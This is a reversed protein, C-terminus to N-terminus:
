RACQMIQFYTCHQIRFNSEVQGADGATMGRQLGAAEIAGASGKTQKAKSTSELQSVCLHYSTRLLRLQMCKRAYIDVATAPSYFVSVLRYFSRVEDGGTTTAMMDYGGFDAAEDRGEAPGGKRPSGDEDEDDPEKDLPWYYDM